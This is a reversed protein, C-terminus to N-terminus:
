LTYAVINKEVKIYEIDLSYEGLILRWILVRDINKFNCTLNKYDTYIRLKQVLLIKRFEKLTEVISLLERETITYRQQPDALKRSYFAILKDKHNIVAGLQFASDDTHIKFNENLDSYTLLTDRAVIWKIKDLADQEVQMWKSKRKISTLRTLPALTHSRRPWM